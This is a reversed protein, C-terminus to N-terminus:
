TKMNLLVEKAANYKDLLLTGFLALRKFDAVYRKIKHLPINSYKSIDNITMCGVDILLNIWIYRANRINSYQRLNKAGKNNNQCYSLVNNPDCDYMFSSLILAKHIFKVNLKSLISQIQEIDNKSLYVKNYHIEELSLIPILNNKEQENM